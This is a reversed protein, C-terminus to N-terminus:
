VRRKIDEVDISQRDSTLIPVNQDFIGFLHCFEKWMFAGAKLAESETSVPMVKPELLAEKNQFAEGIQNPSFFSPGNYQLDIKNVRPNFVYGGVLAEKPKPEIHECIKTAKIYFNAMFEAVALANVSKEPSEDEMDNVGWGLFSRDMVAAAIVLGDKYVRICRAKHSYELYSSAVPKPYENMIPDIHWGMERFKSPEYIAKSIGEYQNAFIDPISEVETYGCGVVLLRSQSFQSSKSIDKAREEFLEKLRFAGRTSHHRIFTDLEQPDIRYSKGVKTAVLMGNRILDLVTQWHVSLKEAVEETTMYQAPKSDNDTM